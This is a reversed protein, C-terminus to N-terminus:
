RKSVTLIGIQILCNSWSWYWLSFCSRSRYWLSFCSGSRCWFHRSVWCQKQIRIGLFFVSGSGAAQSNTILALFGLSLFFFFIVEFYFQSQPFSAACSSLIHPFCVTCSPLEPQKSEKNRFSAEFKVIIQIWVSIKAQIQIRLFVFVFTSGFCEKSRHSFIIVFKHFRDIDCSDAVSSKPIAPRIEVM